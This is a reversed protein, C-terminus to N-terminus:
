IIFPIILMLIIAGIIMIFLWKNRKLGEYDRRSVDSRLGMLWAGLSMSVLAPVFVAMEIGIGTPQASVVADVIAVSEYM